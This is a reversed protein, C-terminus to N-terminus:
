RRPCSPSSSCSEALVVGWAVLTADAHFLLLAVIICVNWLVPAAYSLFFKRHSNLVGLCWASLVLVGTAPFFLRVLVTMLEKTEPAFGPALLM